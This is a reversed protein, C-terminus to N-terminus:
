RNSIMSRVGTVILLIISGGILAFATRIGTESLKLVTYDSFDPNTASTATVIPSGDSTAYSILVVVALVAIAVLMKLAKRPNQVIYILPFIIASAAAVILLFYTWNIVPELAAMLVEREDTGSIKVTFYIGLIVSVILLVGLGIRLVRKTIKDSM